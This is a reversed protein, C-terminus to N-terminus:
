IAHDRSIEYAGSISSARRVSIGFRDYHRLVDYAPVTTREHSHDSLSSRLVSTDSVQHRNRLLLLLQIPGRYHSVSAASAPLFICEDPANLIKFILYPTRLIIRVYIYEAYRVRELYRCTRLVPVGDSGLCTGFPGRDPLRSVRSWSGRSFPSLGSEETAM